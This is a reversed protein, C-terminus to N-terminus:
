GRSRLNLNRKRKSSLAGKKTRKYSNIGNRERIESALKELLSDLFDIYSLSSSHYQKSKNKQIESRILRLFSDGEVIGPFLNLIRPITDVLRLSATNPGEEISGRASTILFAVLEFLRDNQYNKSMRSVM